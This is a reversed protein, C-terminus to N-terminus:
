LVENWKYAIDKAKFTCHTLTIQAFSEVQEDHYRLIGCTTLYQPTVRFTAPAQSLPGPRPQKKM